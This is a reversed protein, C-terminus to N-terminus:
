CRLCLKTLQWLSRTGACGATEPWAGSTAVEGDEMGLQLTVGTFGGWSKQCAPEMGLLCSDATIDRHGRSHLCRRWRQMRLRGGQRHAQNMKTGWGRACTAPFHELPQWVFTWARLFHQGAPNDALSLQYLLTFMGGRSGVSDM